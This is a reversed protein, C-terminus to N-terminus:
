YYPVTVGGSQIYGRPTPQQQVQQVQQVVTNIQAPPKQANIMAADAKEKDAQAQQQAAYAAQSAADAQEQQIALQANAIRKAEWAQANLAAQAHNAQNQAAGAADIQRQKEQAETLSIGLYNLILPHTDGADMTFSMQAPNNPRFLLRKGTISIFATNTALTEGGTNVVRPFVYLKGDFTPAPVSALYKRKEEDARRQEAQAYIEIKNNAVSLEASSQHLDNSLKAATNQLAAISEGDTAIISALEASVTKNAKSEAQWQHNLRANQSASQISFIIAGAAIVSLICICISKM